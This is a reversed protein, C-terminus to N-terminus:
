RLCSLYHFVHYFEHKHCTDVGCVSEVLWDEVYNVINIFSEM